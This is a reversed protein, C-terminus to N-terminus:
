QASAAARLDNPVPVQQGDVLAYILAVKPKYIRELEDARKAADALTDYGPEMVRARHVYMFVSFATARAIAERAAIDAPHLTKGM